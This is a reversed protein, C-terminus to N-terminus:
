VNGCMELALPKFKHQCQNGQEKAATASKGVQEGVEKWTYGIKYHLQLIDFCEPNKERFVIWAESMCDIGESFWESELEPPLQQPAEWSNKRTEDVFTNKALRYLWTSFKATGDFQSVKKFLKEWVMQCLDDQRAVDGPSFERALRGVMPQHRQILTAWAVQAASSSQTTTAILEQDSKPVDLEDAM